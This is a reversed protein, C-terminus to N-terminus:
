PKVLYSNSPFVFKLKKFLKKNLKEEIFQRDNDENLTIIIRKISEKKLLTELSSFENIYDIKNFNHPFSPKYHFYLPIYNYLGVIVLSDCKLLIQPLSNLNNNGIFLYKLNPIDKISQPISDIKNFRLDLYELNKFYKISDSIQQLNCNYITLEKLTNISSLEVPFKKLNVNDFILEELFKFKELKSTDIKIQKNTGRLTLKKLYIYSLIEQNPFVSDTYFTWLQKNKHVKRLLENNCNKKNSYLKHSVSCSNLVLIPLIIFLIYFFLKMKYEKSVVLSFAQPLTSTIPVTM